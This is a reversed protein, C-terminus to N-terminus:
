KNQQQYDLARDMMAIKKLEYTVKHIWKPMQKKLAYYMGVAIGLGLFIGSIVNTIAIVLIQNISIIETL